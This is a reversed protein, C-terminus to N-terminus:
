PKAIARRDQENDEQPSSIQLLQLSNEGVSFVFSPWYALHNSRFITPSAFFTGSPPRAAELRRFLTFRAAFPGGLAQEAAYVAHSLVLKLDTSGAESPKIFGADQWPTPKIQYPLDQYNGLHDVFVAGRLIDESSDVLEFARWKPIGLLPLRRVGYFNMMRALHRLNKFHDVILMADSDVVPPLVVSRSDFPVGEKEAKEKMRTLLEFQEQARSPDDIHFVKRLVEDMSAYDYNQYSYPGDIELGLHKAQKLFHDLLVGDRSSQPILVTIRRLGRHLAYRTLSSAMLRLDPGLYFSYKSGPHESKRNLIISPIRLVQAWSALLPAEAQTLGGILVAVHQLYVLQALGREFGDKTGYTDVWVLLKLPDLGRSRVLSHVQDVVAHRVGEPWTSLPLLLGIKGSHSSLAKNIQKFVLEDGCDTPKMSLLPFTPLLPSRKFDTPLRQALIQYYRVSSQFLQSCKNFEEAGVSSQEAAGAKEAVRASASEEWPSEYSGLLLFCAAILRRFTFSLPM